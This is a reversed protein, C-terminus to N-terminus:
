APRLSSPPVLDAVPDLDDVGCWNLLDALDHAHEVTDVMVRSLGNTVIPIIPMGRRGPRGLAQVMAQWPGSTTALDVGRRHLSEILHYIATPQYRRRRETAPPEAAQNSTTKESKRTARMQLAGTRVAVLM